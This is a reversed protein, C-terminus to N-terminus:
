KLDFFVLMTKGYKREDTRELHHLEMDGFERPDIQCIVCGGEALWEPHNDISGLAQLWLGKYQPPAVYIFNFRAIPHAELFKFADQKLVRSSQEFGLTRLNAQMAKVAPLSTDTFTVGKAGRSLAELGVSGTGGFLDLWLSDRVDDGLINFLAQKVKETIPRTGPDDVSQIKRGKAVGTTIRMLAFTYDRRM